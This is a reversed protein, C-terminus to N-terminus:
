LATDLTGFAFRATFNSPNLCSIHVKYVTDKGRYCPAWDGQPEEKAAMDTEGPGLQM